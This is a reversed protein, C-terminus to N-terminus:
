RQKHRELIWTYIRGLRAIRLLAFHLVWDLLHDQIGPWSEACAIKQQCSAPPPLVATIAEGRGSPLSPSPCRKCINQGWDWAAGPASTWPEEESAPKSGGGKRQRTQWWGCPLVSGQRCGLSTQLHSQTHRTPRLLQASLQRWPWTRSSTLLLSDLAELREPTCPRRSNWQWAQVLNPGFHQKRIHRVAAAAESFGATTKLPLPEVGNKFQCDAKPIPINPGSCLARFGTTSCTTVSWGDCYCEQTSPIKQPTPTQPPSWRYWLESRRGLILESGM